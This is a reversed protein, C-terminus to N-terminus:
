QLNVGRRIKEAEIRQQRELENKDKMTKALGALEAATLAAGIGPIAKAATRGIKSAATKAAAKKAVKKGAKAGKKVTAGANKAKNPVSKAFDTVDDKLTNKVKAANEARKVNIQAKREATLKGQKALEKRELRIKKDESYVGRTKKFDTPEKPANAKARTNDMKARLDREEGTPRAFNRVHKKNKGRGKKKLEAHVVDGKTSANNRSKNAVKAKAKRAVAKEQKIAAKNVAKSGAVAAGTGAATAATSLAKEKEEEKLAEYYYEREKKTM